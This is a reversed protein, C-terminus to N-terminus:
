SNCGGQGALILQPMRGRQENGPAAEGPACGFSRM